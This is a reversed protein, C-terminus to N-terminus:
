LVIRDRSIVTIKASPATAVWAFALALVCTMATTRLPYDVLSHLALLAISITAARELLRDPFQEPPARALWISVGRVALFALLLLGILPGVVGTELASELWDDHARNIFETTMFNKHEFMLYIPVFTGIGTGVPAFTRAATVTARAIPIRGEGTRNAIGNDAFLGLAFFALLVTSLLVIAGGAVVAPSTRRVRRHNSAVLIIALMTAIVALSLGAKSAALAVGLLFILYVTLFLGGVVLAGGHRSRVAWLGWASLFPLTAYLLASFHNRNAFFGVAQDPNTIAYLRLPSGSGAAVQAFGYLVSLFAVVILLFTLWRRVSAELLTAALFITIPPIISFLSRWTSAPSLSIPLWPLPMHEALYANAFFQRHALLVWLAPPLPVLQLLPVLVIAGALAVGALRAGTPRGFFLMVIM